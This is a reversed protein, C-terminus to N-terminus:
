PLDAMLDKEHMIQEKNERIHGYELHLEKNFKSFKILYYCESIGVAYM